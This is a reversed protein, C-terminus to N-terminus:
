PQAHPRDAEVHEVVQDVGTVELLAHAVRHRGERDEGAFRGEIWGLVAELDLVRGLEVAVFVLAQEVRVRASSRIPLSADRSILAAPTRGSRVYPAPKLGARM